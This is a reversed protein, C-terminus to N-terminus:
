SSCLNREEHGEQTGLISVEPCESRFGRYLGAELSQPSRRLGLRKIPRNKDSGGPCDGLIYSYSSLSTASTASLTPYGGLRHSCGIMNEDVHTFVVHINAIEV